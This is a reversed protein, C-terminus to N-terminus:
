QKQESNRRTRLAKDRAASALKAVTDAEEPRERGEWELAQNLTRRAKKQRRKRMWEESVIDVAAPVANETSIGSGQKLDHALHLVRDMVDLLEPEPVGLERLRAKLKEFRM